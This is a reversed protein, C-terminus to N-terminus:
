DMYKGLACLSSEGGNRARHSDTEISVEVGELLGGLTRLAAQVESASADVGVTVVDVLADYAGDGGVDFTLDM